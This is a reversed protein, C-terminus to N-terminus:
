RPGEQPAGPGPAPVLATGYALMELTATPQKNGGSSMEMQSSEFRINVVGTAGLGAAQELMRVTALRRALDAQMTMSKGQGGFLNVYRTVWRSPFDPAYAVSGHVLTSTGVHDPSETSSRTLHALRPEAEALMRQTAERRRLGVLAAYVPVLLPLVVVLGCCLLSFVLGAADGGSM